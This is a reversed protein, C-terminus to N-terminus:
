SQEHGLIYNGAHAGIDGTMSPRDTTTSQLYTDFSGAFDNGPLTFNGTMAGDLPDLTSRTRYYIEIDSTTLNRM